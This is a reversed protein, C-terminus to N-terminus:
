IERRRKLKFEKEEETDLKILEKIEEITQKKNGKQTFSSPSRIFKYYILLIFIPIGIFIGLNIISNMISTRIQTSNRSTLEAKEIIEIQHPDTRVSNGPIDWSVFLIILTGTESLETNPIIAEWIGSQQTGSKLSANISKYQSEWIMKYWLEVKYIGGLDSFVQELTLSEGVVVTSPFEQDLSVGGQVIKTSNFLLSLCVLVLLSMILTYTKWCRFCSKMEWNSTM